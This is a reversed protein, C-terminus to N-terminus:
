HGHGRSTKLTLKAPTLKRTIVAKLTQRKTQLSKIFGLGERKVEAKQSLPLNKSFASIREEAKSLIAQQERPNTTHHFANKHGEMARVFAVFKAQRVADNQFADLGNRSDGSQKELGLKQRWDERALIGQGKTLNAWIETERKRIAPHDSLARSFRQELRQRDRTIKLFTDREKQSFTEPAQSSLVSLALLDSAKTRNEVNALTHSISGSKNPVAVKTRVEKSKSDVRLERNAQHLSPQNAKGQRNLRETLQELETRSLSAPAGAERQNKFQEVTQLVEDIAGLHNRLTKDSYEEAM